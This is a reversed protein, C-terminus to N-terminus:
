TRKGANNFDSDPIEEEYRLRFRRYDRNETGISALDTALM